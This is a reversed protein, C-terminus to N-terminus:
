KNSYKGSLDNLKIRMMDKLAEVAAKSGVRESGVYHWEVEVDTIKLKRKKALFLFEIDFGANVAAGTVQQNKWSELMSPFIKEVAHRTFAKFGCQTDSFPLGLFITRLISFGFSYIKRIPPAGKRGKRKGIVVDFGKKFQPFFNEVESLPTSQDLDTFLAIQGRSNLLGTMVTVAKGGHDNEILHFYKKDKIQAKVVEATKDTSKDDVIIVEYTYDVTKLYDEMQDLVGSALNKEENYAPVIISLYPNQAM